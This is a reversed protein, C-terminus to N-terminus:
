LCFTLNYSLTSFATLLSAECKTWFHKYASSCSKVSKLKWRRNRIFTEEVNAKFSFTRFRVSKTSENRQMGLYALCKGRLGIFDLVVTMIIARFRLGFGHAAYVLSMRPKLAFISTLLSLADPWLVIHMRENLAHSHAINCHHRMTDLSVRTSFSSVASYHLKLPM